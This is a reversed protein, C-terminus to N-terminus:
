AGDVMNQPLYTQIGPFIVCWLSKYSCVVSANRKNKLSSVVFTNVSHGLLPLQVTTDFSQAGVPHLFGKDIFM